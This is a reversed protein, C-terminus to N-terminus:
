SNTILINRKTGAKGTIVAVSSGSMQSIQLVNISSWHMDRGESASLRIACPLYFHIKHSTKNQSHIFAMRMFYCFLMTVSLMNVDIYM